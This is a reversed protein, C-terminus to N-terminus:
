SPDPPGSTPGASATQPRLSPTARSVSWRTIADANTETYWAWDPTVLISFVLLVLYRMFSVETESTEPFGQSQKIKNGGKSFFFM